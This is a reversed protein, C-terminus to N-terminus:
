LQNPTGTLPSISIFEYKWQVGYEIPVGRITKPSTLTVQNSGDQGRFLGAFIPAMPSPNPGAQTLSGSQTAHYFSSETVNQIIPLGTMPIREVQLPLGQNDQFSLTESFSLVDQQGSWLYDAELAFKYRLFTTGHAGSIEDHSIAQSVTVGGIASSSDLFFPSVAGSNDYMAASMGNISLAQQMNVLVAFIEATSPRVIKGKLALSKRLLHPRGNDSRVFSNTVSTIAVSNPDFAYNGYVFQM